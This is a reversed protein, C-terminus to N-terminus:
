TSKAAADRLVAELAKKATEEGHVLRIEKPKCRMRRVFDVLNKQDAHASYGSITHVRARIPYRQGDLTVYGGKPGYEQLHRGPTGAAQYGILLVDTRLDGLLAKLYNVIRGGSCMGGHHLLIPFVQSM